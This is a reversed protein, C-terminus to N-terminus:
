RIAGLLRATGEEALPGSICERLFAHALMTRAAPEPIGRAMLFFLSDASLQGVTAGHACRVDDTYIELEPKTNM